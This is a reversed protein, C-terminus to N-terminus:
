RVVCELSLDAYMRKLKGNESELEKVFAKHGSGGDRVGYKSQCRWYTRRILCQTRGACMRM